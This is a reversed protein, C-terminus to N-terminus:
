NTVTDTFTYTGVGAAAVSVRFPTGSPSSSACVNRPAPNISVSGQGYAPVDGSAPSIAAWPSGTGLKDVVTASWSVAVNSATNDLTITVPAPTPGQNLCNWSAKAPAITFAVIVPIPTPTATPSPTVTPIATTAATPMDTPQPVAIPRHARAAAAGLTLDGVRGSWTGLSGVVPTRLPLATPVALLLSLVLLLISAVPLCGARGALLSQAAQPLDAAHAKLDAGADFEDKGRLVRWVGYYNLYSAVTTLLLAVLPGTGVLLALWGVLPLRRTLVALDSAIVLLLLAAAVYTAYLGLPGLVRALRSLRPMRPPRPRPAVPTASM